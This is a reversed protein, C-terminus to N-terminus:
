FYTLASFSLVLDAKSSRTITRTLIKAPARSSLFYSSLALRLKLQSHFSLGWIPQPNINRKSDDSEDLTLCLFTIGLTKGTDEKRHLVGRIDTGGESRGSEMFIGDKAGISTSSLMSPDLHSQALSFIVILFGIKCPKPPGKRDTLM